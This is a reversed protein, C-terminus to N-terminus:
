VAYHSMSIMILCWCCILLCCDSSHVLYPHCPTMIMTIDSCFSVLLVLCHQYALIAYLDKHHIPLVFTMLRAVCTMIGAIQGTMQSWVCCWQASSDIHLWRVSTLVSSLAMLRFFGVFCIRRSSIRLLFAICSINLATSCYYQTFKLIALDSLQLYSSRFGNRFGNDYSQLTVMKISNM